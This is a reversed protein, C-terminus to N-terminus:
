PKQTLNAIKLEAKAKGKETLEYRRNRKTGFAKVSGDKILDIAVLDLRKIYYGSLRAARSINLASPQEIGALKEFALIIILIAMKEDLDPNKIKIFPTNQTFDIIQSLAKNINDKTTNQSIKSVM